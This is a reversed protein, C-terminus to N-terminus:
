FVALSFVKLAEVFPPHVRSTSTATKAGIIITTIISVGPVLGRFFGDAPIKRTRQFSSFSGRGDVLFMLIMAFVLGMPLDMTNPLVGEGLSKQFTREGNERIGFLALDIQNKNRQVVDNIRGFFTEGVLNEQASGGHILFCRGCHPIENM